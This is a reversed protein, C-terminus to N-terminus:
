PVNEEAILAIKQFGADSVINMIRMVGDYDIHQDARFMIRRNFDGKTAKLVAAALADYSVIEDGVQARDGPLLVVFVGEAPNAAETGPAPPQAIPVDGMTLVIGLMVIELM